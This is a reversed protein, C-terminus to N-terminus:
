YHPTFYLHDKSYVLIIICAIINFHDKLVLQLLLYRGVQKHELALSLTLSLKNHANREINATCKESRM